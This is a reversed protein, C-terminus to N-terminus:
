SDKEAAPVESSASDHGGNRGPGRSHGDQGESPRRGAEDHELKEEHGEGWDTTERLVKALTELDQSRDDAEFRMRLTAIESSMRLGLAKIVGPSPSRSHIKNARKVVSVRRSVPIHDYIGVKPIRLAVLGAPSKQEELIELGAEVLNEPVFFYFYNPIWVRKYTERGDAYCEHKYVKNKFDAAFDSRSRKVEVEVLQKDDAGLVDANFRGAETCVWPMRKGFRLWALAEVHLSFKSM